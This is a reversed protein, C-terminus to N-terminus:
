RRFGALEGACCAPIKSQGPYQRVVEHNVSGVRATFAGVKSRVADVDHLDIGLVSVEACQQILRDVIRGHNREAELRGKWVELLQHASVGRQALRKTRKR